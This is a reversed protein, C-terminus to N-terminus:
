FTFGVGIFLFLNNVKSTNNNFTYNIGNGWQNNYNTNTYSLNTSNSEYWFVGFNILEAKSNNLNKKIGIIPNIRISQEQIKNFFDYGINLGFVPEVKKVNKTYRFDLSFALSTELAVGVGINFNNNINIGNVVRLGGTNSNYIYNDSSIKKIFFMEALLFYRNKKNKEINLYNSNTDTLINQSFCNNILIFM